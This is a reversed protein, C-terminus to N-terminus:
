KHFPGSPFHMAYVHFVKKFIGFALVNAVVSVLTNEGGLTGIKPYTMSSPTGNGREQDDVARVHAEQEVRSLTLSYSDPIARRNSGISEM